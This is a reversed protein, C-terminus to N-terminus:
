NRHSSTYGNSSSGSKSQGKLWTSWDFSNNNFGGFTDGIKGFPGASEDGFLGSILNNLEQWMNNPHETMWELQNRANTTAADWSMYAGYRSAASQLEAAYKAVANNREAITMSAWTQKDVTYRRTANDLEAVLKSMATYKDAVAEATKASVATNAISTQAALMSSMMSVLASTPSDARASEGSPLMASATAGSGVSAGQGGMASLVPNLGAARLDAVERQHATDSMMKQWERNKAAEAANFQNAIAAQNASWEQQQRAYDLNRASTKDASKTITDMMNQFEGVQAGVTWEQGDRSITTTGDSNKLWSSGDGGTIRSGSPASNIFDIGRQSGIDYTSGSNSYGIFAM